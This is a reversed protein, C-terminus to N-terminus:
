PTVQRQRVEEEMQAQIATPYRKPNLPKPLKPNM